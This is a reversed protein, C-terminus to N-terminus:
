KVIKAEYFKAAALHTEMKVKDGHSKHVEAARNHGDAAHQAAYNARAQARPTPPAAARPQRSAVAVKNM